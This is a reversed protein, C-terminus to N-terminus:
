IAFVTLQQELNELTIVIIELKKIGNLNKKKIKIMVFSNKAYIVYRKSKMLSIKKDTLPIM